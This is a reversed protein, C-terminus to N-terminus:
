LSKLPHDGAPTGWPEISPGNSNIKYMFSMTLSMCQPIRKNASSVLKYITTSVGFLAARRIFVSRSFIVIQDFLHSTVKLGALVSDSRSELFILLGSWGLRYRLSTRM